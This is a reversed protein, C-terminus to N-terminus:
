FFIGLSHVLFSIREVLAAMAALYVGAFIVGLTIAIFVQGTERLVEFIANPRSEESRTGFHFYALTAISGALIISGNIFGAGNQPDWALTAAQIQPFLTGLLAGGIAVGAGVGVLYGMAPNGLRQLASSTKMFLLAGLLAPTLLLLRENQSGSLLPLLLQPLLVQYIIVAAAYGASVGIFLYTAIRFLPNDGLLYSFVALTLAFALTTGIIDNM